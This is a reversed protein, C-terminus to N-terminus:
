QRPDTPRLGESDWLMGQAYLHGLSALMAGRHGHSHVDFVNYGSRCPVRKTVAFDDMGHTQWLHCAALSAADSLTALTEPCTEFNLPPWYTERGFAGELVFVALLNGPRLGYSEAVSTFDDFDPIRAQFTRMARETTGFRRGVAPDTPRLREL